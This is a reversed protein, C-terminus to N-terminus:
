WGGTDLAEYCIEEYCDIMRQYSFQRAWEICDKSKIKDVLNNRVIEEMESQSKVVFGTEGHMITERMAGNDWAIVPMGCLQAEVPALGFPEKYHQNPHLLAKNTNFWTVCENRNQPGVYRLKPSVSCQQRIRSVLDPEGTLKDDGVMDLYVGCRNAVDVAIHPGKITSIRALFLYKENRKNKNDKYFSSDVGNYVTRAACKLHSTIAETQDKSIGVLCPFAVPPASNYMTHVPAHCVGLVPKELKGEIKLIYSWKEWSHDVIVDYDNLRQWYGSYAQNESEGLTTGHLTAKTQSEKPAVLLVEHGKDVLGNALQWTIMELGAYGPPPCPIVTTSIVCIKLKPSGDASLNRM